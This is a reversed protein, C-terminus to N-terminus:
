PIDKISFRNSDHISPTPQEIELYNVDVDNNEVSIIFRQLPFFSPFFLSITTIKKIFDEIIIIVKRTGWFVLSVAWHFIIGERKEWKEIEGIRTISDRTWSSWEIEQMGSWSIL